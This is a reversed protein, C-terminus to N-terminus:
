FGVFHPQGCRSAKRRSSRLAARCGITPWLPSSGDRGISAPLQRFGVVVFRTRQGHVPACRCWMGMQAVLLGNMQECPRQFIVKGQEMPRVGTSPNPDRVGSPGYVAVRADQRPNLRNRHTMKNGEVGTHGAVCLTTQRVSFFLVYLSQLFFHFSLLSVHFVVFLVIFFEVRETDVHPIRFVLNRALSLRDAPPSTNERISSM